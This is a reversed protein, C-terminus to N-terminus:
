IGRGAAYRSVFGLGLGFVAIALMGQVVRSAWISDGGLGAFPAVLFDNVDDVRERLSSHQQERLREVPPRPNPQNVNAVRPPAAPPRAAPGGAADLRAVTEKSGHRAEESAFAAFSVVVAAM